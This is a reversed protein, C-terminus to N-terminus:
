FTLKFGFSYIKFQPYRSDLQDNWMKEPDFDKVRTFTLLNAGSFYIRMSNIGVKKTVYSPLTYGIELNKLRLYSGNQIWYSSWGDYLNNALNGWRPWSGTTYTATNVDLVRKTFNRNIELVDTNIQNITSIGSNGQFFLTLDIGKWNCSFNFSYTFDPFSNGLYTRDYQDIVGDPAGKPGSIDKYKIDGSRAYVGFQKQSHADASDKFFGNAMLGYYTNMAYGKENISYASISPNLGGFDTIKNKIKSINASIAYNFQKINNRYELNLEIGKNQVAGVNQLPGLIFGSTSPVPLQMLIGITNKNFMDVTLSLRNEFLGLDLGVNTMRTTEWSIESNSLASVAVGSQTVGGVTYNADPSLRTMFTYDGIEQNGLKGWSGRLKLLSLFGINNIFKENSLIWAASLAPFTGYRHARAFRSSGDTRVTAEIFYKNAFSYDVRGFFSQLSSEIINGKVTQQDIGAGLVRIQDSPLDNVSASFQTFKTSKLSQGLLLNFRNNENINLSYKLINENQYFQNLSNSNSLSNHTSGNIYVKEATYMAWTPSFNSSVWTNISEAFTSRFTLNKALDLEGFIKGNVIINDSYGDFNSNNFAPNGSPQKNRSYAGDVFGWDGDSYKVPVTPKAEFAGYYVSNGMGNIVHSKVFNLDLGTRFIKTVKANINARTSIRKNSTNYMIGDQDFYENSFMYDLKDTGGSVSIYAKKTPAVRYIAKSWDTNAWHDPDSGDKMKAIEDEHYYYNAGKLNEEGILNWTKAWDWANLLDPKVVRDQLFYDMQVSVTPKGKTGHKTTVLIVGNAARVGYIAASSADKLVSVSEIDSAPIQGIDGEVGDILILPNNNNFSGLGRISIHVDEGGPRPAFSQVTVGPIKGELLSATNTAPKSTLDKFNISSVSGTLDSKKQTGYGVVVVDSLGTIDQELTVNIEIQNGVNVTKKQFGVSSIELIINRNTSVTLTFRGDSNTTTGNKTGVVLVSVGQLPSGSKNVIRGHIEVPPPLAPLTVISSTNVEVEENPQVVVTQNIIKYTFPQSAFCITLADELTSNKVDMSVKRAEKLMTATYMFTYGTQKKIEQFVKQLPANKVHLTVSQSNVRASVQLFCTLILIATINM